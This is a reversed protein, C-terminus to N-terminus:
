RAPRSPELALLQDLQTIEFLRRVKLTVCHLTLAKGSVLLHNAVNAIVHLGSSDMFRLGDLHMILSRNGGEIIATLTREFEPADVIDLEGWVDIEADIASTRIRVAISSMLILQCDEDFTSSSKHRDSPRRGSQIMSTFPEQRCSPHTRVTAWNVIEEDSHWIAKM